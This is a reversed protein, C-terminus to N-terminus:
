NLGGALLAFVVFLCLVVAVVIGCGILIKGAPNKWLEEDAVNPMVGQYGRERLFGEIRGAM